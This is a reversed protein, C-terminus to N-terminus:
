DLGITVQFFHTAGFDNSLGERVVGLSYRDIELRAELLWTWPDSGHSLTSIGGVLLEQWTGRLSLRHEARLESLPSQGGYGARLELRDRWPLPLAADVGVVVDSRTGLSRLVAGVSPQLTGAFGAQIGVDVSVRDRRDSGVTGRMLRASVGLGTNSAVARALSLVALDETVTLSGPQPEPSTTTRAIDPIGLHQYAAGVRGLWRVDFVVAGALGQVGSAQPGDVHVVWVERRGRRVEAIGAPNWLLAPAGRVLADPTASARVPLDFLVQGFAPTATVALLTLVGALAGPGVARCM